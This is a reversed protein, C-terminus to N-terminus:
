VFVPTYSVTIEATTISSTITNSGPHLMPFSTCDTDLFKNVGDITIICRESDIVLESGSPLAKIKIGMVTFNSLDASPIYSLKFPTSVTSKCYLKGNPSVAKIERPKHRIASFTYVVDHEGSSDFTPAGITDILATYIFGDPLGIEVIRGIVAAEFLAINEAALELRDSVSVNRTPEGYRNPRFTLTLTIKRTGLVSSFLSPMKLVNSNQSINNAVSTGSVSFNQLRANYNQIDIGNLTMEVM